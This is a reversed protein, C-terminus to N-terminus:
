GLGGLGQALLLALRQGRQEPRETARWDCAPLLLRPLQQAHAPWPQQALLQHLEQELGQVLRNAENSSYGPLMLREIHLTLAAGAVKASTAVTAAAVPAMKAVAVVPLDAGLTRAIAQGNAKLSM